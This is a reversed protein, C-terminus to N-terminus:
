YKRLIVPYPTPSTFLGHVIGEIMRTAAHKQGQIVDTVMDCSMHHRVASAVLRRVLDTVNMHKSHVLYHYICEIITLAHTRFSLCVILGSSWGLITARFYM